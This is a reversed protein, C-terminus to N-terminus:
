LFMCVKAYRLIRFLPFYSVDASSGDVESIILDFPFSSLLDVWFWFKLYRRAIQWRDTILLGTLENFVATNFTLMIDTCFVVVIFIEFGFDFSGDVEDTFAIKFPIYATAIIILIGFCTDWRLKFKRMPHILWLKNLDAKSKTRDELAKKLQGVPNAVDRKKKLNKSLATWFIKAKDEAMHRSRDSGLTNLSGTKRGLEDTAGGYVAIGADSFRSKLKQFLNSSSGERPVHIGYKGFRKKAAHLVSRSGGPESDAQTSVSGEQELADHHRRFTIRAESVRSRMMQILSSHSSERRLPGPSSQEDEHPRDHESHALSDRRVTSGRKRLGIGSKIRHFIPLDGNPSKSESEDNSRRLAAIARGDHESYSLSDSGSKSRSMVWRLGYRGADAKASSSPEAPEELGQTSEQPDASPRRFSMGKMMGFLSSGDSTVKEHSFDSSDHDSTLDGAFSSPERRMLSTLASDSRQSPVPPRDSRLRALPSYQRVSPSSQTQPAPSSVAPLVSDSDGPSDEGSLPLYITEEAERLAEYGEAEDQDGGERRM